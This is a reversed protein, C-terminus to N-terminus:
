PQSLPPSKTYQACSYLFRDEGLPLFVFSPFFLSETQLGAFGPAKIHHASQLSLVSQSHIQIGTLPILCAWCMMSGREDM